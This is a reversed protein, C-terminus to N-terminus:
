MSQPLKINKPVNQEHSVYGETEQDSMSKDDEIKVNTIQFEEEEEQKIVHKEEQAIVYKSVDGSCSSNPSSVPSEELSSGKIYSDSKASASLLPSVSHSSDPSDAALEPPPTPIVTQEVSNVPAVGINEAVLDQGVDSEPRQIIEGTFPM